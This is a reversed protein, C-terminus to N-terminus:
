LYVAYETKFTGSFMEAQYNKILTRDAEIAKPPVSAGILLFKSSNLKKLM